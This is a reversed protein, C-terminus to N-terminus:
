TTFTVTSKNNDNVVTVIVKSRNMLRPSNKGPTLKYLVGNVNIKIHDIDVIGEHEGPPVYTVVQLIEQIQHDM